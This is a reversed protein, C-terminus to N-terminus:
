DIFLHNQKSCGEISESGFYSHSISLKTTEFFHKVQFDCMCVCVCACVCIYLIFYLKIVYLGVVRIYEGEVTCFLIVSNHIASPSFYKNIISINLFRMCLVVTIRHQKLIKRYHAKM